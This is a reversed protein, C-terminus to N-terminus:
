ETFRASCALKTPSSAPTGIDVRRSEGTTFSNNTTLNTVGITSSAKIMDMRNSGDYLSVNLTGADTECRINQFTQNAVAPALLLTTTGGWTTTTAISFALTKSLSLSSTAVWQVGTGTSM